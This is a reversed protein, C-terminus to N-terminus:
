TRQGAARAHSEVEEEVGGAQTVALCEVQERQLQDVRGSIAENLVVVEGAVCILFVDRVERSCFKIENVAEQPEPFLNRHCQLFEIRHYASRRDAVAGNSGREGPLELM